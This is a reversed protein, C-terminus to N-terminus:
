DDAVCIPPEPIEEEKPKFFNLIPQIIELM